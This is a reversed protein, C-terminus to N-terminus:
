ITGEPATATPIAPTAELPNNENIPQYLKRWASIPSIVREARGVIQGLEIDGVSDSRSDSSNNRNDGMVFVCGDPVVHLPYPEEIYGQWYPSEDVVLGNVYLAGNEIQITDGELAVIRKVRSYKKQPYNCLVVEGRQPPKFYYALKNVFVREGEILTPSMSTGDVRAPEGVFVRVAFIALVMLLMYIAFDYNTARRYDRNAEHLQEAARRLRKRNKKDVTYRSYQM